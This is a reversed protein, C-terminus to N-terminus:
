PHKVIMGAIKEQADLKLRLKELRERDLEPGIRVRFASGSSSKQEDIYAPYGKARLQDQLVQANGQESFSGVQLAWANIATSSSEVIERATPQERSAEDSIPIPKFVPEDPISIHQPYRAKHGAGDLWEPVLIVLLAALIIAGLLRQKLARDM